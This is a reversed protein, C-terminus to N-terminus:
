LGGRLIKDVELAIDRASQGDTANITIRVDGVAPREMVATATQQPAAAFSADVAMRARAEVANAADSAYQQPDIVAGRALQDAASEVDSQSDRMGDAFGEVLSKGRHPTWGRGSFPGKKAPSQPLWSSIEDVVGGIADGVGSVMSAIGDILGQIITKGLELWDVETIANWIAEIIQPIAAILDPIAVVLGEVIALIIQIAAEIIMPLNELLTEVITSIMGVASTILDPLAGIIGLILSMILSIGAEIILPLNETIATVLGILLQLAGDLLMPLADILGTVLAMLLDIGAQIILPLNEVIATLLGNILSLAAEIIMPLNEIIGQILGMLLSIGAQILVPLAQIIGQLLTTVLTLAAQIIMPLNAVIADLLGTVLTVAGEVLLPVAVVIGDILAQVIQTAAELLQPVASLIGDVLEPIASVIADIVGPLASVITDVFGSVLDGIQGFDGGAAAFAGLGAAAIFLPNTLLPLKTALGSFLSGVIPLKTALGSFLSGVIPLKSLLPVLGIAGIAGFSAGLPGLLNDLGGVSESIKDLGDQFPQPLITVISSLFSPISQVLSQLIQGVRPVINSLATGVSQVLNDTMGEVDGDTKGLETLWNSWSAKMAGVSGEITSAAEEATTGTIGLETQVVHIAETVDAFSDINYEVGSLKAADELLREMEQKTGGYGLKLNDLMTYNQKAFGQYTNQISAIDTGMKNANDSMDIMAQNAAGAAATTDGDLSSILSASFSTVQTMYENASVGATQFAEDAFGQVTGSADKFLTDIGGTVQEWTAYESVASKTIAVAQTALAALGAAAMQSAAQIGAGIGDLIAKGASGAKDGIGTLANGAADKLRDFGTVSSAASDGADKSADKVASQADKLKTSATALNDAAVKEKRRASELKESAAVAAASDEGSKRIVEALKAEATRVTGAADQQKLRAATLKDQASQVERTLTKLSTGGLGASASSFASKMDKGLKSGASRGAGGMSSQLNRGGERGAATSEAAVAKRFGSFRPTVMVFGAGVQKM